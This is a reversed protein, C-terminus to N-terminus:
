LTDAQGTLNTGSQNPDHINKIFGGDTQVLAIVVAQNLGQVVQAIYAIRHNHYFM